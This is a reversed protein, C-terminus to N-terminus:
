MLLLFSFKVLEQRGDFIVDPSYLLPMIVKHQYLTLVFKLTIKYRLSHVSISAFIFKWGHIKVLIFKIMITKILKKIKVALQNCIKFEPTDSTVFTNM